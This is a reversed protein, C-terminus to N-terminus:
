IAQGVRIQHVGCAKFDTTYLPRPNTSYLGRPCYCRHCDRWPIINVIKTPFDRRVSKRSYLNRFTVFDSSQVRTSSLGSELRENSRVQHFM